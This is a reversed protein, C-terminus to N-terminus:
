DQNTEGLLDSLRPLDDDDGRSATLQLDEAILELEEQQKKRSGPQLRQRRQTAVSTSKPTHRKVQSPPNTENVRAVTEQKNERGNEIAALEDKVRKQIEAELEQRSPKVNDPVKTEVVVTQPGKALRALGFAALACILLTALAVSARMWVPSLTFFDKLAALASSPQRENTRTVQASAANMELANSQLFSLSQRRWAGVSTHVERFAVLEESCAACHQMHSEFDLAEQQSAEQYLYAVLDDARSCTQTEINQLMEKEWTRKDNM